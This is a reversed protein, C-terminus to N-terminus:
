LFHQFRIDTGKYTLTQATVNTNAADIYANTINNSVMELYAAFLQSLPDM